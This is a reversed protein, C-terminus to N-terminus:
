AGFWTDERQADWWGVFGMAAEGDKVKGGKRAVLGWVQSGPRLTRCWMALIKSCGGDEEELDHSSWWM